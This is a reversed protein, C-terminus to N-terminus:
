TLARRAEDQIRRLSWAVDRGISEWMPPDDFLSRAYMQRFAMEPLERTRRKRYLGLYANCPGFMPAPGDVLEPNRPVHWAAFTIEDAVDGVSACLRALWDM